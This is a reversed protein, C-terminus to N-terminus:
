DHPMLMLNMDDLCTHANKISPPWHSEWGNTHLPPDEGESGANDIDEEEDSQESNSVESNDEKQGIRSGEICSVSYVSIINKM